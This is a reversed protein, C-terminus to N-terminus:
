DGLGGIGGLGPIKLGGAIKGMEENALAQAKRVGENVAALVLDQLMELDNPDAVEPRVRVSLCEMRGNFTMAVMGGGVSVDVTKGALEEQASAIRQQAQQAMKLLDTMNKM